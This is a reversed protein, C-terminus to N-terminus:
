RVPNLHLNTLNGQAIILQDLLVIEVWNIIFTRTTHVIGTVPSINNSGLRALVFLSDRKILTKLINVTWPPCYKIIIIARYNIKLYSYFFFFYKSKMIKKQFHSVIVWTGRLILKFSTYLPVM